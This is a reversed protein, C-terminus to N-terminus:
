LGGPPAMGAIINEAIRDAVTAPSRRTRLAEELIIATRLGIQAVRVAVTEENEEMWEAAASIIGGANAVYDPVYVIGRRALDAAAGLDALQNNAAGCILRAKMSAVTRRTLVGGLACPAFIDADYLAIDESAVLRAGLQQATERARAPDIDAVILNAGAEALLLCLQSGVQGLGQVAVTRGALESGLAARAGARMAHFVGLATWPAPNGGARGAGRDRGVVHRTAQAVVDMDAVCTGVDEATIYRGELREVARGFASFLCTRDFEGEPRRIVAKAGGLPLGAMANKYSMGEALRVADDFAADLSAYPWLRCGGAAPGLATSHIVILGELRADLDHLRVYQVPTAPRNSPTEDKPM